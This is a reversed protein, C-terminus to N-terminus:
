LRRQDRVPLAGRQDRLRPLPDAVAAAIPGFDAVRCVWREGLRELRVALATYRVGSQVRASVEVVDAGVPQARFTRLTLPVPRRQHLRARLVLDAAVEDDVWRTLQTVPRRGQVTDLLARLLAAVFLDLEPDTQAMSDPTLSVDASDLPLPAM